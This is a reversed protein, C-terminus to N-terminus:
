EATQRAAEIAALAADPADTGMRFRTGSFTTIEVADFGAVRYMWGHGTLRIGFGHYWPIRVKRVEVIESLAFRRRILGPGFYCSVDGGAVEITLSWHLWLAVAVVVVLAAAALNWGEVFLMVVTLVLAAGLGIVTMWGFQTHRFDAEM